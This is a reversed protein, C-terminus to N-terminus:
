SGQGAPQRMGNTNNFTRNVSQMNYHVTKRFFMRAKDKPPLLTVM